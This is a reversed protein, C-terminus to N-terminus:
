LLSMLSCVKKAIKMTKILKKDGGRTKKNIERRHQLARVDPGKKHKTLMFELRAFM